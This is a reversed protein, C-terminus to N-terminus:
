RGPSYIVVGTNHRAAEIFVSQEAERLAVNYRTGPRLVM